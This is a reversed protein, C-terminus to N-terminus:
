SQFRLEQFFSIYLHPYVGWMCGTIFSGICFRRRPWESEYKKAHKLTSKWYWYDAFRLGGIATLIGLWTFKISQTEPTLYAFVLVCAAFVTVIIGTEENLYLLNTADRKLQRTQSFGTGPKKVDM